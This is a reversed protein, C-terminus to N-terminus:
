VKGEKNQKAHLRAWERQQRERKNKRERLCDDCYLRPKGTRSRTYTMENECHPSICRATYNERKIVRMNVSGVGSGQIM